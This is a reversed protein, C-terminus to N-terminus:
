QFLYKNKCMLGRWLWGGPSVLLKIWWWPTWRLMAESWPVSKMALSTHAQAWTKSHEWWESAALRISHRFPRKFVSSFCWNLPLLRSPQPPTRWFTTHAKFWLGAHALYLKEWLWFGHTWSELHHFLFPEVWQWGPSRSSSTEAMTTTWKVCCKLGELLHTHTWKILETGRSFGLVIALVEYALKLFLSFM